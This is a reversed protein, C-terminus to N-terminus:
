SRKAKLHSKITRSQHLTVAQYSRPDDAVMRVGVKRGSGGWRGVDLEKRTEHTRQDPSGIEFTRIINVRKFIGLKFSILKGFWDKYVFILNEPDSVGSM